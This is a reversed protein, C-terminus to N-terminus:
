ASDLHVSCYGMYGMCLQSIKIECCQARNGKGRFWIFRWARRKIARAYAKMGAGRRILTWDWGTIRNPTPKVASYPCKWLCILIMKNCWLYVFTCNNPKTLLWMAAVICSLTIFILLFLFIYFYTLLFLSSSPQHTVRKTVRNVTPQDLQLM